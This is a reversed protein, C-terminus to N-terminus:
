KGVEIQEPSYVKNIGRDYLLIKKRYMCPEEEEIQEYLGGPLYPTSVWIIFPNTKAIYREAVERAEEQQNIPFLDGEEMLVVQPNLGHASAVHHSPFAKIRNGNIICMTEKTKKIGKGM